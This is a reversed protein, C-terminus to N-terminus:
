DLNDCEYDSIRFGGDVAQTISLYRTKKAGYEKLTVSGLWSIDSIPDIRDFEYVISDGLYKKFVGNIKFYDFEIQAEEYDAFVIKAKGFWPNANQTPDCGLDKIPFNSAFASQVFLSLILLKM